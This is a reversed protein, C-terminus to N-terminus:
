EERASSNQAFARLRQTSPRKLRGIHTHIENELLCSMWLPRSTRVGVFAHQHLSDTSMPQKIPVYRAQQGGADTFAIVLIARPGSNLM